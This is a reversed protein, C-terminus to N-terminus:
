EADLEESDRGSEEAAEILEEESVDSAERLLARARELDREAVYVDRRGVQAAQATFAGGQVITEIGAEGLRASLLEAEPESNVTTLLVTM